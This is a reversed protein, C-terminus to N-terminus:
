SQQRDDGKRARIALVVPYEPDVVALERERLERDALGQLFATAALVNGYSSIELDDAAFHAGLLRTASRPTFSWFWTQNWDADALQSIGPVTCLLVGGPKLIRHLTAVAADLDFIMQLTQTLIVCDYSDSPVSPADTLDDVYTAGEAQSVHLMDSRAVDQGYTQTYTREGVELVSGTVLHRHRGLFQEIYHRDIPRGRDWGYHRSVPETRRLSGFRVFGVRRRRLQTMIAARRARITQGSLSTM